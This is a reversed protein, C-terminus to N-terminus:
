RPWVGVGGRLRQLYGPRCMSCRRWLGRLIGSGAIGEDGLVSFFRRYPRFGQPLGGIGNFWDPEVHFLPSGKPEFILDHTENSEVERLAMLGTIASQLIEPFHPLIQCKTGGFSRCTLLHDTPCGLPVRTSRRVRPSIDGQPARHFGHRHRLVSYPPLRQSIGGCNHPVTATPDTPLEDDSTDTISSDVPSESASTDVITFDSLTAISISPSHIIPTTPSAHTTSPPGGM